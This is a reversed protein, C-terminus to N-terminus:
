GAEAGEEAAKKPKITKSKGSPVRKRAETVQVRVTQGGSGVTQAATQDGKTITALGIFLIILGAAMLTARLVVGSSVLAKLADVLWNGPNLADLVNSIGPIDGPGPVVALPGRSLVDGLSPLLDGPSFGGGGGGGGLASVAQGYAADVAGSGRAVYYDQAPREAMYAAQEAAREPNSTWLSDPIANVAAEYAGKMYNAAFYPDSAQAASVGPHAPLHIQFPGFSTGSDGVAFSPGLGGELGAGTEMALALRQNGGAVQQIAATVTDGM